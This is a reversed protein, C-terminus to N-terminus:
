RAGTMLSVNLLSSEAVRIELDAAYDRHGAKRVELHHMGAPVHVMFHGEDSGTWRQGDITVEADGPQVYLDLIGFGVVAPTARTRPPAAAGPPTVPHRYTGAPPPPVSEVAEPPESVEGAHLRLMTERINFTSGPRLYINYRATRYGELYLVISHAGPPLPLAQFASNFDDVIGAYFGDVYVEAKKAEKPEIRLRVEAHQDYLPMYWYPYATRPWWPYPGFFPVYFYGGIFVHGRVAVAPHPHPPHRPVAQRQANIVNPLMVLLVAAMARRFIPNM